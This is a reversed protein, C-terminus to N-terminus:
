SVPAVSQESLDLVALLDEPLRAREVIGFPAAHIAEAV